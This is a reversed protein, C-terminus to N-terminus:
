NDQPDPPLPDRPEKPIEAGGSGHLTASVKKFFDREWAAHREFHEAGGRRKHAGTNHKGVNRAEGNKGHQM